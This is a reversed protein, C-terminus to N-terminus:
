LLIQDTVAIMNHSGGEGGANADSSISWWSRQTQRRAGGGLAGFSWLRNGHDGGSRDSVPHGQPIGARRALEAQSWGEGGATGPGETSDTDAEHYPKGLLV